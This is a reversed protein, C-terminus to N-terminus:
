CDAKVLLSPGKNNIVLFKKLGQYYLEGFKPILVECCSVRGDFEANSLGAVAKGTNEM